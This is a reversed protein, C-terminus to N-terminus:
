GTPGRRFATRITPRMLYVLVLPGVILNTNFTGNALLLLAEITSLVWLVVALPWAWPRLNWLGYATAAGLITLIGGILLAGSAGGFVLMAILGFGASIAALLALITIGTPRQQDAM